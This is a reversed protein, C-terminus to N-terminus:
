SPSPSRPPSQTRCIWQCLKGGLAAALLLWLSQGISVFKEIPVFNPNPMLPQPMPLLGPPGTISPGTVPVPQAPVYASTNATAALVTYSYAVTPVPSGASGAPPVYQSQREAPIVSRYALQLLQSPALEYHSGIIATSFLVALYLSGFIVFGLWFARQEGQRYVSLLIGSGVLGLAVLWTAAEWWLNANLLAAVGVAAIAVAVLLTRISFQFLSTM